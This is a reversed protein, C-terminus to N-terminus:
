CSSACAPLVTCDTADSEECTSICSWDANANQTCYSLAASYSWDNITLACVTYVTNLLASCQTADIGDGPVHEDEDEDDDDDDGCSCSIMTGGVALALVAVLVWYLNNIKM